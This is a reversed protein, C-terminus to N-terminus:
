GLEHIPDQREVLYQPRGNHDPITTHAVDIGLNRYVTAFVEQMHVPRDEAQEALRNTSGIVQGTRMGGGALLAAHVSPWHDRGDFRDAGGEGLTMSKMSEGDARFPAHSMGLFGPGKINWPDHAMKHPLDIYAPVSTDVPGFLKSLSSGM